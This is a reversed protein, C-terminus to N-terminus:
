LHDDKHADAAKGFVYGFISLVISVGFAFASLTLFSVVLAIVSLLIFGNSTSQLDYGRREVMRNYEKREAKSIKRM